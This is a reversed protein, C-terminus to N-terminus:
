EAPSRTSTYFEGQDQVFREGQRDYQVYQPTPTAAGAKASVSTNQKPYNYFYPSMSAQGDRNSYYDPSMGTQARRDAMGESLVRFLDEVPINRYPM